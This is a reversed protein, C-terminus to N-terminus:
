LWPSTGHPKQHTPPVNRPIRGSNPVTTNFTNRTSVLATSAQTSDGLAENQFKRVRQRHYIDRESTEPVDSAQDQANVHSILPREPLHDPKPFGHNSLPGPTTESINSSYLSEHDSDMGQEEFAGSQIATQFWDMIFPRNADFAVVSIGITELEKRILRWTEREDAALSDVTTVTIVSGEHKGDQFEEVFKNLKREM